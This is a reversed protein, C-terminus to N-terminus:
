KIVSSFYQQLQDEVATKKKEMIHGYVQDIMTESEHGVYAAIYNKPVGLSLMVSVCYHRLDHFRFREIGLADQLRYLGNRVSDHSINVVYSGVHPENKLAQEVAPFLRVTRVSSISKPPKVIKGGAPLVVLTEAIRITGAKLDVCDWKLGIVESIRMGLCAGLLIPIYLNTGKALELIRSIEDETPVRTQRPLVKPFTVSYKKAPFRESLIRKMFSVCHRVVLPSYHAALQNATRQLDDSSIVSAKMEWIPADIRLYAKMGSITVPSLVNSKASIHKQAYSRLTDASFATDAIRSAKHASMRMMLNNYDADTFSTYHPKGDILGDYLKAQFKGSKTRVIKPLKVNRM